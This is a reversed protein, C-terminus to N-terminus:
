DGITISPALDLGSMLSKRPLAAEGPTVVERWIGVVDGCSNDVPGPLMRNATPFPDTSPQRRKQRKEEKPGKAKSATM